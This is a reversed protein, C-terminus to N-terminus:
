GLATKRGAMEHRSESASHVSGHVPSDGPSGNARFRALLGAPTLIELAGPAFHEPKRTVVADARGHRAAAYLVADDYEGSTASLGEELAARGISRIEFQEMVRRISVAAREQGVARGLLHSLAVLTNAGVIGVILGDVVLGELAAAHEHHPSRSLLLDLLVNLDFVVRM